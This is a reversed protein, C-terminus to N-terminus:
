RALARENSGGALSVSEVAGLYDYRACGILGMTVLVGELLTKDRSALGVSVIGQRGRGGPEPM